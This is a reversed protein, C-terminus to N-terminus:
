FIETSHTEVGQYLTDINTSSIGLFLHIKWNRIDCPTRKIDMHSGNVSEVEQMFRLEM